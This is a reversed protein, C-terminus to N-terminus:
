RDIDRLVIMRHLTLSSIESFSNSGIEVRELEKMNSLNFEKFFIIDDPYPQNLVDNIARKDNKECVSHDIFIERLEENDKLLFHNAQHISNNGISLFHINNNNKIEMKDISNLSFPTITCSHYFLFESLFDIEWNWHLTILNNLATKKDITKKSEIKIGHIQKAEKEEGEGEGQKEQKEQKEKTSPSLHYFTKLSTANTLDIEQM